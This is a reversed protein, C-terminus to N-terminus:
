LCVLLIFANSFSLWTFCITSKSISNFFSNDFVVPLIFYWYKFLYGLIISLTSLINIDVRCSEEMITATKYEYYNIIINIM